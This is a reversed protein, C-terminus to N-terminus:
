SKPSSEEIAFRAVCPDTNATATQLLRPRDRASRAAAVAGYSRSLMEDSALLALIASTTASGEKLLSSVGERHRHDLRALGEDDLSAVLQAHNARSALRMALRRIAPAESALQRLIFAFRDHQDDETCLMVSEIAYWQIQPDSDGCLQCMIDLLPVAEKGLEAAIFSSSRRVFSNEHTLLPELTEIPFGRFYEQLLSYAGSSNDFAEPNELLKEILITARNRNTM